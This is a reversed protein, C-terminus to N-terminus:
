EAGHANMAISAVFAALTDVQKEQTRDEKKYGAIEALLNGAKIKDCSKLEELVFLEEQVEGAANTDLKKGKETWPKSVKYSQVLPSNRPDLTGVPTRVIQTLFEMLEVATMVNSGAQALAKERLSAIEEQVEVNKSLREVGKYQAAESCNGWSECYAVRPPTGAVILEAYKRQKWNM